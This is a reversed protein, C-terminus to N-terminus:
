YSVLCVSCFGVGTWCDDTAGRDSVEPSVEQEQVLTQLAQLVRTMLDLVSQLKVASSVITRYRAIM